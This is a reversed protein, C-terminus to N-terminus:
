LMNGRIDVIRLRGSEHRLILESEGARKHPKGNLDNWRHHWRVSVILHKDQALIRNTHLLWDTAFERQRRDDIRDRIDALTGPLDEAFYDEVASWGGRRLGSELNRILEDVENRQQDPRGPRVSVCGAIVTLSALLLFKRRSGAPQEAALTPSNNM